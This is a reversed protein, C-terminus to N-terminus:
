EQEGNNGKLGKLIDTVNAAELKQASFEDKPLYTRLMEAIWVSDVLRRRMEIVGKDVRAKVTKHDVGIIRAASRYSNNELHVLKVAQAIEPPLDELIKDMVIGLTSTGYEEFFYKDHHVLADRLVEVREVTSPDFLWTKREGGTQSPNVRM